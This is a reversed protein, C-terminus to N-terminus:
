MVRIVFILGMVIMILSSLRYLRVRMKEGIISMVKGFLLSAPMTGLGFLFMLVIGEFFGLFHNEAEMGSRAAAILATYVLGCPIFGLFIGIPYFSGITLNESSLHNIRKIFSFLLLGRNKMFSIKPVLGVLGLGMLIIMIGSLIMIFRQLGQIHGAIGIFSGTMGVMGGLLVYTSVRGLNYLIHPVLTKGKLAVSYSAVIPGCMGLCHGFGGFLGSTFMLIYVSKITFM